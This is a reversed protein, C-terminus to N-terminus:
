RKEVTGDMKRRRTKDFGRSRIKRKSTTVLKIYRRVLDHDWTDAYDNRIIQFLMKEGRIRRGKAIIKADASTKTRHQAILKPKLNWFKDRDPHGTEYLINHDRHYLSIIQDETMQKADDYPIEGLALLACAYSTKWSIHKRGM